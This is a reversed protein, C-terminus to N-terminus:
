VNVIARLEVFVIAQKAHRSRKSIPDVFSVKAITFRLEERDFMPAIVNCLEAPMNGLSKGKQEFLAFNNANYPNDPERVISIPDGVQIREILETRGEYRTGKVEFRLVLSGTKENFTGEAQDLYEMMGPEFYDPGAIKSLEKRQHLKNAEMLLNNKRNEATM